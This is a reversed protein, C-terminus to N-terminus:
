GGNDADGVYFRGRQELTLKNFRFRKSDELFDFRNVIPEVHGDAYALNLRGGHHRIYAYRETSKSADRFVINIPWPNRDQDITAQYVPKFTRQVPWPRFPADIMDNRVGSESILALRSAPLDALRFPVITRTGSTDWYGRAPPGPTYYYYAMAHVNWAYTTGGDGLNARLPGTLRTLFPCFWVSGRSDAETRTGSYPIIGQGSTNNSAFSLREMWKKAGPASFQGVYVWDAYPLTGDNDLAYIMATSVLQRMNSTCQTNMAAARVKGLAPLLLSILVAIIAIVVLLEVLTFGFARSSQSPECPKHKV